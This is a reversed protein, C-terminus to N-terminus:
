HVPAEFLGPPPRWATGGPCDRVGLGCGHQRGTPPAEAPHRTWAPRSRGPMREIVLMCNEPDAASRGARESGPPPAPRVRPVGSNRAPVAATCATWYLSRQPGARHYGRDPGFPRQAAPGPGPQNPCIRQVSAIAMRGVEARGATRNKRQTAAAPYPWVRRTRRRPPRSTRGGGTGMAAPRPPCPPRHQTCPRSPGKTRRCTVHALGASPRQRPTRPQAPHRKGVQCRPAPPCVM